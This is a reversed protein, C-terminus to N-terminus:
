RNEDNTESELMKCVSSCESYLFKVDYLSKNETSYKFYIKIEMSFSRKSKSFHLMYAYALTYM